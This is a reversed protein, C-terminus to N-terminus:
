QRMLKITKSQDGVRVELFYIGAPLAPEALVQTATVNGMEWLLRGNLDTLLLQASANGLVALQVTFAAEFPNPVVRVDANLTQGVAIVLDVTFSQVDTCGNADTITVSYTGAALGSLDQTTAGNSWLYSLNGTGGSATLDITGNSSGTDDGTTGSAVIAAPDDLTITDSDMCGNNDTVTVAYSGALLSSISQTTDGNSWSYSYSPTGGAPILTIAGTAGGPCLPDNATDGISVLAPENMVLTDLTSCGSGDTVIVMYAGAGIPGSSNTTSGTSWQYLYGSGSGGSPLVIVVGDTDGNCTPLDVTDGIMIAAPETVIQTDALTCGHADTLTMVYAGAAIGNLDQATDGNSWFYSYGPTGGAPTSNIAGDGSGNCSLNTASTTLALATPQTITVTTATSCPTIDTITVTYSGAALASIDQTTANNSWLYTYGPTGGTVSLDIAGTPIGNCNVDTVVTTALPVNATGLQVNDWVGVGNNFNYLHIKTVNNVSASRFPFSPQVLTNNVYLDFNHLSWNINRMEIHYWANATATYEVTSSSVFRIKGTGGNWYCFVICNSASVSADGLVMYNTAVTGTPYIDWSIRAPTAAAITTSFGTLHTSVGGTGELRYLGASPNTTTVAGSTLGAGM